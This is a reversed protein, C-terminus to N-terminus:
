ALHSSIAVWRPSREESSASCQQIIHGLDLLRLVTVLCTRPDRKLVSFAGSEHRKVAVHAAQTFKFSSSATARRILRQRRPAPLFLRQFIKACLFTHSATRTAHFPLPFYMVSTARLNPTPQPHIWLNNKRFEAPCWVSSM